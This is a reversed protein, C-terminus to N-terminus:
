EGEGDLFRGLIKPVSSRCNVVCEFTNKRRPIWVAGSLSSGKIRECYVLTPGNGDYNVYCRNQNDDAGNRSIVLRLIEFGGPNGINPVELVPGVRDGDIMYYEGARWAMFPGAYVPLMMVLSMFCAFLRLQRM